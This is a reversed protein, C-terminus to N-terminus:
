CPLKAGGSRVVRKCRSVFSLVCKSLYYADNSISELSNEIFKKLEDGDVYRYGDVLDLMMDDVEDKLVAGVNEAINLDPSNGPWRPYKNDNIDRAPIYGNPGVHKKLLKTYRKCGM